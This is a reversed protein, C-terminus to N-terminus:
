DFKPRYSYTQYTLTNTIHIGKDGTYRTLGANSSTSTSTTSTYRSHRLDTRTSHEIHGETCWNTALQNHLIQLRGVPLFTDNMHLSSLLESFDPGELIYRQITQEGWIQTPISQEGQQIGSRWCPEKSFTNKQDRILVPLSLTGRVKYQKTSRIPRNYLVGAEEAM